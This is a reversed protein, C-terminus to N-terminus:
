RVQLVGPDRPIAHADIRKPFLPTPRQESPMDALKTPKGNTPEYFSQVRFEASGKTKVRERWADRKAKAKDAREKVLEDKEKKSAYPCQLDVHARKAKDVSDKETCFYCDRMGAMHKGPGGGANSSWTQGGPPAGGSPPDRKRADFNQGHVNFSRGSKIQKLLKTNAEDELVVCAAENVFGVPDAM